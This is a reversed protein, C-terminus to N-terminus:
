VDLRAGRYVAFGILMIVWTPQRSVRGLLYTQLLRASGGLPILAASLAAM